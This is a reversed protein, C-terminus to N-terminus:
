RFRKNRQAERVFRITPRFILYITWLIIWVSLSILWKEYDIM